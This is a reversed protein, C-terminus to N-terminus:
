PEQKPLVLVSFLEPSIYKTKQGEQELCCKDEMLALFEDVEEPPLKDGYSSLIKRMEDVSLGKGQKDFVSFADSETLLKQLGVRIQNESIPKALLKALLPVMPALRVVGEGNPDCVQCVQQIDKTSPNCNVSRLFMGVDESSIVGEGLKKNYFAKFNEEVLEMPLEVATKAAADAEAM